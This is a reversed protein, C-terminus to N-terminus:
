SITTPFSNKPVTFGGVETEAPELGAAGMRMPLNGKFHHETFLLKKGKATWEHDVLQIFLVLFRNLYLKLM